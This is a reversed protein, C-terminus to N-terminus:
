PCCSPECEEYSGGGGRSSRGSSHEFVRRQRDQQFGSVPRAFGLARRGAASARAKPDDKVILWFQVSCRPHAAEPLRHIAMLPAHYQFQDVSLGLEDVGALSEAAISVTCFSGPSAPDLRVLCSKYHCEGLLRHGRWDALVAYTKQAPSPRPASTHRSSCVFTSVSRYIPRSSISRRTGRKSKHRCRRM